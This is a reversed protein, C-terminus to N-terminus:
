IAADVYYWIFSNIALLTIFFVNTWFVYPLRRAVRVISICPKECTCFATKCPAYISRDIMRSVIYMLLFICNFLIIGAVLVIAVSKYIHSHELAAIASTIFNVGGFFAIVVASFISLVAIMENQVSKLKKSATDLASIAQKTQYGLHNVQLEANHLETENKSYYELRAIELNLHDCLKNLNKYVRTYEHTKSTYDNEIYVRLCELNHSLCGLDCGATNSIELILPFFESYNHRFGSLTKNSNVYLNYLKTLVQEIEKDSDDSFMKQSLQKILEILTDQRKRTESALM